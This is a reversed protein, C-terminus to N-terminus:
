RRRRRLLPVLAGVAVSLSPHCFAWVQLREGKVLRGDVAVGLTVAVALLLVTLLMVVLLLLLMNRGHLRLLLMVDNKRGDRRRRMVLMELVVLRVVRCPQRPLM